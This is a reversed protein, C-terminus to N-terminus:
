LMKGAKKPPISSQSEPANGEPVASEDEVSGTGTEARRAEIAQAAEECTPDALVARAFSQIGEFCGALYAHLMRTDTEPVLPRQKTGVHHLAAEYLELRDCLSHILERQARTIPGLGPYITWTERAKAVLEASPVSARLASVAQGAGNVVARDGIPFAGQDEKRM